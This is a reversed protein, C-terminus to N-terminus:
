IVNQIERHSRNNSSLIKKLFQGTYSEKVKAVEEPTGKAVIEGGDEGGEPGLDIIYDSVKIVDLNHEIVIMTNGMDALRNLVELLKEVDAFHLGTTPEDLLYITKGTSRKNLESALKVRQAEGGSLTTASQGLHIYGLGVDNLTKLKTEIKPINEFFGLAEEVSMNLVDSITKEKFKVELTERNYRKGNCVDCNIYVDPLFNMEIKIIGEGSCNECRGGKVNFSFRGAKYGRIKAENTNVFTERIIDFVGTYTAPNSRPTRGIPSQDINIIKDLCELGEIKDVGFPKNETKYVVHRLYPYLIENILTSKGSGSVGTICVFKGLPIDVDINKLNNLRANKINIFNGNGDRRTSPVDIKRKESLFQGTLSEKNNIIDQLNGQAIIEGGNKGAHIGIDVIHDAEFITEEDHEVVILTNGLDRLRKLTDLLKRNDRQHLGISPEDLVYLVGVLGSGIQTALRIRQAEGGSLTNATRSLTLYSLGVDLLFKLRAKIEILVQHAIISKKDDLKINEVWNYLNRISMDSIDAISEDCIKVALIEPKLKKGKCAECPLQTMFKEYEVRSYESETESHRRRVTNVVGEFETNFIIKESQVKFKKDGAGYFIINKHEETLDKFPKNLDLNFEKSVGKLISMVISHPNGTKSWPVIAGDNISKNEDPVIKELDIELKYGLGHCETCAGYPNNFSFARPTLEEITLNCDICSYNESFILDKSGKADLIEIIVIGESKKMALAVSDTLRSQINDKKILRDIVIAIDQKKTRELIIDDELDYTKNNVRVRAFGDKKLTEFLQRYEGKRGRVIPSLVQFKTANKLELINDVIQDITQPNIVKGCKPCHPTGIRAYLLRLYDHIETVTGVTSRPNHSTSKQDISISPSLGEIYDVDPKDIKGLFQRAYSSLSEVYRRQGEAFITDFALSSKGSGSVGTFVILKNRPISLNVNKLNNERAGKIVINEDKM